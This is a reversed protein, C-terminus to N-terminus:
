LGQRKLTFIVCAQKNSEEETYYGGEYTDKVVASVTPYQDIFDEKYYKSYCDFWNDFVEINTVAVTVEDDLNPLKQFRITDGIKVLKRKDDYLRYERKKRDLKLDEFESQYLKMTHEM